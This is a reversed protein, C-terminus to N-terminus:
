QSMAEQRSQPRYHGSIQAVILAVVFRGELIEQQSRERRREQQVADGPDVSHGPVGIQELDPAHQHRRTFCRYQRQRSRRDRRRLPM